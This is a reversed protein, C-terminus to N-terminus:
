SSTITEDRLLFPTALFDDDESSELVKNNNNCALQVYIAYACGRKHAVAAMKAMKSKNKPSQFTSIFGVDWLEIRYRRVRNKM